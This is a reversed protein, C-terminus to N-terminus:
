IVYEIALDSMKCHWIMHDAGEGWHDKLVMAPEGLKKKWVKQAQSYGSDLVFEEVYQGHLVTLMANLLLTGIGKKQYDPLIFATGIEGLDKYKRDTCDNLLASCPGYAITGVIEDDDCAILFFQNRGHSNLDEKLFVMKETIENQIEEVCDGVGEKEWTHPIAIKYLKHLAEIDDHHPRRINIKTM